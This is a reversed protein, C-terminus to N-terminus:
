EGIDINNEELYDGESIICKHWYNKLDEFCKQYAGKPITKLEELSVTKIEEITAFRREKM